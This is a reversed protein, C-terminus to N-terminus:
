YLVAPIRDVVSGKRVYIRDIRQSIGCLIEYGITDAHDAVEDPSITESGQTGFLVAEDGVKVDSEAGLDVMVYDMTVRGAIPYRHGRILVEAGHGGARRPYGDGYGAAITALKTKRETVYCGGYSVPTGAEVEKVKVVPARFTAVPMLGAGLERSPDPRCGYLAIGPRVLLGVPLGTRLIAASNAFHVFRPTIGASSLRDLSTQFQSQQKDISTSDPEDACALHTFVGVFELQESGVAAIFKDLEDPSIGMRSMGTDINLHVKSRFPTCALQEALSIDNVTLHVNQGSAWEAESIGCVGLILVPSEIGNERLSRAEVASAVAFFDVGKEELVRAAPVAGCGYGCDKIVALVAASEPINNRIISLNRVLADLDVILESRNTHFPIKLRRDKSSCLKAALLRDVRM